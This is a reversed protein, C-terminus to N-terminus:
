KNEEAVTQKVCKMLGRRVRSVTQYIADPTKGIQEAITKMPQTGSYIKLLLLKRDTPLKELCHGLAALQEERLRLEELGEDAILKNIEETLVLRDRAKKRRYMLVEYRAIMCVWRKFNEPDDLQEFKRWAIVSVEQMVEDVDNATPLLSRLFARIARDHRVILRVFQERDHESLESKSNM